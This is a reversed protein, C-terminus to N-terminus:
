LDNALFSMAHQEASPTNPPIFRDLDAPLMMALVGMRWSHDAVSECPDNASEEGM